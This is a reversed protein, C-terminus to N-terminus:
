AVIIVNYPATDTHVGDDSDVSGSFDNCSNIEWSSFAKAVVWRDATSLRMCFYATDLETSIMCVRLDFELSTGYIWNWRWCGLLSASKPKSHEPLDETLRTQSLPIVNFYNGLTFILSIDASKTAARVSWCRCACCRAWRLLLWFLLLLLKVFLLLLLWSSSSSLSSSLSSSVYNQLIVGTSANNKRLTARMWWGGSLCTAERESVESQLWVFATM